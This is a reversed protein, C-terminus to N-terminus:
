QANTTSAILFNDGQAIAPWMSLTVRNEVDIVIQEPIKKIIQLKSPPAIKERLTVVVRLFVADSNVNYIGCDAIGGPCVTMCLRQNVSALGFGYSGHTDISQGDPGYRKYSNKQMDQFIVDYVNPALNGNVINQNEENRYYYQVRGGLNVEISILGNVLANTPADDQVNTNWISNLSSRFYTSNKVDLAPTDSTIKLAPDEETTICALWIQTPRQQSIAIDFNYVPGGQSAFVDYTEITEYNLIFSKMMREEALMSATSYRLSNQVYVLKPVGNPQIWGYNINSYGVRTIGHNPSIGICQRNNFFELNLHLKFDPPLYCNTRFFYNIMHLPIVLNFENTTKRIDVNVSNISAIYNDAPTNVVNSNNNMIFNRFAKSIEAINSAMGPTTGKAVDSSSYVDNVIANLPSKFTTTNPVGFIGVRSSKNSDYKNDTMIHKIGELQFSTTRGLPQTNTGGYIAIRNIFQLICWDPMLWGDPMSCESSSPAIANTALSIVVPVQIYIQDTRTWGKLLETFTYHAIPNVVQFQDSNTSVFVEELRTDYFDSNLELTQSLNFFDVNKTLLTNEGAAQQYGAITKTSSAQKNADGYVASASNTNILNRATKETNNRSVKARSESFSPTPSSEQDEMNDDDDYAYM